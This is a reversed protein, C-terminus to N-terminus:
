INITLTEGEVKFGDKVTNVKNELEAKVSELAEHSVVVQNYAADCKANTTHALTWGKAEFNSIQEQTLRNYIHTNITLTKPTTVTAAENLIRAISKDSLAVLETLNMDVKLGTLTVDTLKLWIQSSGASFMNITKQVNTMNLNVKSLNSSGAFMTTCSTVPGLDTIYVEELDGLERFADDISTAKPLAIKVSRVGRTYRLLDNAHTANNFTFPTLDLNPNVSSFICQYFLGSIDTVRQFIPNWLQAMDKIISYPVGDKWDWRNTDGFNCRTFSVATVTNTLDVVKLTSLDPIVADSFRVTTYDKVNIIYRPRGGYFSFENHKDNIFSICFFQFTNNWIDINQFTGKFSDQFIGSLMDINYGNMQCPIPASGFYAAQYATIPNSKGDTDKGTNMYEPLQHGAYVCVQNNVKTLDGMSIIKQFNSVYEAPEGEPIPLQPSIHYKECVTNINACDNSISVWDINKVVFYTGDKMLAAFDKDVDIDKIDTCFVYKQLSDIRESSSEKNIDSQYKQLDNDWIQEAYALKDKADGQASTYLTGTLEIGNTLAEM